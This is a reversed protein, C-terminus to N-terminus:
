IWPINQKDRKMSKQEVSELTCSWVIKRNVNLLVSFFNEEFIAKNPFFYM